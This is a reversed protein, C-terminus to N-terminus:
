TYLQIIGYNYDDYGIFYKNGYSDKSTLVIKKPDIGDINITKKICIFNIRILAKKM